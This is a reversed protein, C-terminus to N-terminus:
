WPEIRHALRHLRDAAGRLCWGIDFLDQSLDDRLTSWRWAFWRLIRQGRTLPARPANPDFSAGWQVDWRSAVAISDLIAAQTANEARYDREM